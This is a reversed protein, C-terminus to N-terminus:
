QPPEPKGAKELSRSFALQRGDPSWRPGSDRPGDTLQRAPGGSASVIWLATDYGDKKKNVTVLTYVVKSGDPSIQPDAIWQFAYLDNETILRKDAASLSFCAFAALAFLVIPKARTM